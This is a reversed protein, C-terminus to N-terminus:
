SSGTVKDAGTAAFLDIKRLEVPFDTVQVGVADPDLVGFDLATYDEEPGPLWERRLVPDVVIRGGDHSVVFRGFVEHLQANLTPIDDATLSESIMRSLRNM